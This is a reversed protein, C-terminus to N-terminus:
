QDTPKERADREPFGDEDLPLEENMSFSERKPVYPPILSRQLLADFNFDAFYPHRRMKNISIRREPKKELMGLILRKADPEVKMEDARKFKPRKQLVEKVVQEQSSM